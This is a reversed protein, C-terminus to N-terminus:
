LLNSELYSHHNCLSQKVSSFVGNESTTEQDNARKGSARLKDQVLADGDNFVLNERWKPSTSNKVKMVVMSDVFIEVVMVENAILIHSYDEIPVHTSSFQILDIIYYHM